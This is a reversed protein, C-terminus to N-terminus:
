EVQIGTGVSTFDFRGDIIKNVWEATRKLGGFPFFHVGKLLSQPDRSKHQALGVVVEDPTQVSLLKTLNAAHKSVAHLSPGVGCDIAYKLLTKITALGPLGAVYPLRNVDRM